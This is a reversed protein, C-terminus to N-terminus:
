GSATGLARRLLDLARTHIRCATPTSIGLKSGIDELRQEDFYLAMVVLREREPLSDIARRVRRRHMQEDLQAEPSPPEDVHEAVVFATVLKDFISEASRLTDEHARPRSAGANVEAAEELVHNAARLVRAHTRRSFGTVHQAGDIIAGRIRRYAFAGFPVGRSPDFSREAEVLGEYGYGILDDVAHLLGLERALKHATGRVRDEHEKPIPGRALTM